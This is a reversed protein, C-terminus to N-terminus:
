ELKTRGWVIAVMNGRQEMVLKHRHGEGRQGHGDERSCRYNMTGLKLTAECQGERAIGETFLGDSM